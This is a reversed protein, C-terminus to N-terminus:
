LHVGENILLSSAEAVELPETATLMPTKLSFCAGPKTDGRSLRKRGSHTLMSCRNTNVSSVSWPSVVSLIRRGERGQLGTGHDPDHYEQLSHPPLWGHGGM